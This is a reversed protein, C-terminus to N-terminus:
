GEKDKQPVPVGEYKEMVNLFTRTDFFSKVGM